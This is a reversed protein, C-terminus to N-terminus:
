GTETSKEWLITKKESISGTLILRAFQQSNVPTAIITFDYKYKIEGVKENLTKVDLNNGIIIIEIKGKQPEGHSLIVEAGELSSVTEIFEELITKREEFLESLLATAKNHTLSYLKTKKILNEQIIGIQRLKKMIRFTTAVPVKTKKSVERLYFQETDDFLFLKLISLEKKDFFEELINAAPMKLAHM